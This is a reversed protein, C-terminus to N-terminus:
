GNTKEVKVRLLCRKCTTYTMETFPCSASYTDSHKCGFRKLYSSAVKAFHKIYKM